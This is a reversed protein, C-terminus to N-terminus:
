IHTHVHTFAHTHWSHTTQIKTSNIPQTPLKADQNHQLMQWLENLDHASPAYEREFHVTISLVRGCSYVEM